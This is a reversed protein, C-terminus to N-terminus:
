EAEVAMAAHNTVKGDLHTMTGALFHGACYAHDETKVWHPSGLDCVREEMSRALMTATQDCPHAEIVTHGREVEHTVSGDEQEHEVIKSYPIQQEPITGECITTM